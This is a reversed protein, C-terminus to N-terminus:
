PVANSRPEGVLVRARGDMSLTGEEVSVFGAGRALEALHRMWPNYPM